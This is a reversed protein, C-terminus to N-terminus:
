NGRRPGWKWKGVDTWLHQVVEAGQPVTAYSSGEIPPVPRASVLPCNLFDESREGFTTSPGELTREWRPKRPIEVVTKPWKWDHHSYCALFLLVQLSLVIDQAKYKVCGVSPPVKVVAYITLKPDFRVLFTRDAVAKLALRSPLEKGLPRARGRLIASRISRHAKALPYDAM